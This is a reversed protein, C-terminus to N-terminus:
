GIEPDDVPVKMALFRIQRDRQVLVPVTSGPDTGRSLAALEAANDVPQHNFAVIIDDARIGAGAAPTGPAVNEVRVGNSIGMSSRDRPTLDSVVVGLPDGTVTTDAVPQGPLKGVTIAVQKAKGDRWIELTANSNARTAAVLPPLAASRAIAKGDYGIIVDGAKLDAAAAPSDPTIASILAGRPQELGFSEALGQDLDQISIGLWGRTVHGDTKLTEAINAALNIPIAFSLGMYGGTRSFIQSNIGIVEGDLNFLPGGSNGPNLAVDTQIFPVYNDNPLSRSVASVIGQTATQNLGFPAGIALVWQGVNLSDSDGFTAAPLGTADVKLLAVDSHKDAGVLTADFERQDHMQVTIKAAGEVVHANTLIYGDASAIVGSGLGAAPERPREQPSQFDRFRRFFEPIRPDDLSGQAATTHSERETQINVVAASQGAVLREFDPMQGVAAAAPLSLCLMLFFATLSAPNVVRAATFTDSYAAM